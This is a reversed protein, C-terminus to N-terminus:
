SNEGGFWKDIMKDLNKEKAYILADEQLFHKKYSEPADTFGLIFNTAIRYIIETPALGYVQKEFIHTLREDDNPYAEIIKPNNFLRKVIEAIYLGSKMYLDAFTHNPDDFCGPDEEELKDVMMKVVRKPTFIQNTKQPPVYDFIDEEQSEDFYNALRKKLALFEKVSDNFVIPDFLRGQFEREKGFDDVYPGGDRLMRFQDLTISAVEQFVDPPVITDFTELTTEENGYAMLFAPITRAFGRLHSRAEEEVRDKRHELKCTEAEHAVNQTIEGINDNFTELLNEGFHANVERAREDIDLDIEEETEGTEAIANKREERERKLEDNAKRNKELEQRVIEAVNEKTKKEITEKERKKLDSYEEKVVDMIPNVVAPALKNTLDKILKSMGTEPIIKEVIEKTKELNDEITKYIKEGFVDKATGVVIDENVKVNENEDLEIGDRDIQAVCVKGEKAVPPIQRLIDIVEAPASFIAGINQFLFNSMFGRRVVERSRIKRPLRLVEEADLEIMEGDDDEGIVPFFNLLVRVNEKREETGGKGRSTEASLDNAFEEFIILTRAPDFDFVYANEKVYRENNYTYEWPNQARFATQMYTAPSKVNSLMLVATWEPVTIGTTLQGVTLTITKDSHDIAKRVRELAENFEKEGGDNDNSKGDGAAIVIEYEGFVPHAKLKEELAKASAVRDLRWLTHKLEDRLEPTSFPYKELKTLADLFKDVQEDYVFKGKKKGEEYTKFFVNLDFAYEETEGNIEVGKKLEDRVIESMQYTFLNLKPLRAYPNTGREEDWDRKAKQEDAYTWNFIRDQQFKENALAKFPTGSLHLTHFRAIQVFVDKTLDTDVGEHAEDIVLLDWYLNKVYELKETRKTQNNKSSSNDEFFCRAGKLDQLSHFALLAKQEQLGEPLGKNAEEYQEYTLVGEQKALGTTTSVFAFGSEAGLFKKYDDFWSHAIAPRNTVILVRFPRKKDFQAKLRMCLDYTALTKGFRPKANWLFEADKNTEFCTQTLEVARSQESRLEYFSREAQVETRGRKERFEELLAKSEQGTIRFWETGEKREVGRRTLYAHFDHDTFYEGSGDDYLAMRKWQLEWAVQVTHTQQKIREEVTQRDTYGIKTWGDHAAIQPTTYAYVMPIVRKTSSILPASM